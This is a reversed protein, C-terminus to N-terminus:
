RGGEAEIEVKWEPSKPGHSPYYGSCHTLTPSFTECRLVMGSSEAQRKAEIRYVEIETLPCVVRAIMGHATSQSIAYSIDRQITTPDTMPHDTPILPSRDLQGSGM